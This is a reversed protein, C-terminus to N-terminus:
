TEESDEEPLDIGVTLQAAQVKAEAQKAWANAGAYGAGVLGAGAAVRLMGDADLKAFWIQAVFALDAIVFLALCFVIITFKRGREDVVKM